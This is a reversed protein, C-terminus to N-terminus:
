VTTLASLNLFFFIGCLTNEHFTITCSLSLSLSLFVVVVVDSGLIHGRTIIYIVYCFLTAWNLFGMEWCKMEDKVM